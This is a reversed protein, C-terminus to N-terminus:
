MTTAKACNKDVQIFGKAMGELTTFISRLDDKHLCDNQKKAREKVWYLPYHKTELSNM